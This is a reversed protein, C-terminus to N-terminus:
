KNLLISLTATKGSEDRIQIFYTGNVFRALDITKATQFTVEEFYLGQGQVNYVSITANIPKAGWDFTLKGTTPNPYIKVASLDYQGVDLLAILIENSPASYCGNNDTVAYYLGTTDPLYTTGTAGPILGRPGFWQLSTSTTTAVLTNGVLSVVPPAPTSYLAMTISDVLTNQTYCGGDTAVSTFTVVDGFLLANSSFVSGTGVPNNNVYWTLSPNTGHNTVTATFEILSDLCGPNSGQTLTITVAPTDVPAVSMVIFNSTDTANTVCPDTATLVAFVTDMDNLTATNFMAGTAGQVPANNVFWQYQPNLGGDTVVSTFNILRGACTMTSSANIAIDSTLTIHKITDPTSTATNPVACPSNSVLEVTIIDGDNLMASFTDSNTGQVNGNVRWTYVPASGSNTPIAKYVLTQNSCGPNTGSQLSLTVDAPFNGRVINEPASTVSDMGCAGIFKMKVTVVDGNALTSSTYTNTAIGTTGGNVMWEYTPNTIGTGPTATLTLTEGPCSPNSGQTFAVSVAGAAPGGGRIIISYDEAQGNSIQGCATMSATPANDAIVRMRLPVCSMLSPVTLVTPVTYQFSHTEAFLSGTHAYIEEGSQFIGDNNYDVFVKVNQVGGSTSVDFNYINGATLDVLHKCTNDLYFQNGDGTYGSSSVSMYTLSADSIVIERPGRNGSPTTIAPPTCSAAVPAAGPATAGLSSILSSRDTTLLAAIVRTGQGPTFLLDPCASYNMINRELDGLPANPTVCTNNATPQCTFPDRMHPDTDCVEDGDTACNTNVPCTFPPMGTNAPDDGEFTHHLAFAHGIEHPLTKSGAQASYALMVTGDLAPSAGPFWAFGAVFSGSSSFGDNGDIKNIVWINYYQDNPWISLAKVATESAGTSTNHAMGDQAYNALTSGDVRNIGTTAACNPDRKALAFQLPIFTGGNLTNPYAPWTAAYTQNLYDVMAILQADSPNYNTGIAGGTHIVHIVLPIEYVPGNPTNVILSNSNNAQQQQIFHTIGTRFQQSRAAFAPDNQKADRYVKDFGCYQAYIINTCLLGCVLFIFRRIM